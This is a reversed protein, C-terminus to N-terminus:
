GLLERYIELYKMATSRINFQKGLQRANRSKEAHLESNKLLTEVKGVFKGFKPEHVGAKHECILGDPDVEMSAVPTGHIWSQIFSNPFGEATSTNIFLGARRYWEMDEGPPVPGEFILGDVSKSKQRLEEFYEDDDAFGILHFTWDDLTIRDALDIFLEPRKWDVMRALWIVKKKYDYDTSINSIPYGYRIVKSDLNFEQKLGERMYEALVVRCDARQLGYYYLRRRRFPKDQWYSRTHDNEHALTFVFPSRTAQTYLRTWGTLPSAPTNHYIDCDAAHLSALYERKTQLFERVTGRSQPVPGYTHVTIGDVIETDPQNPDFQRCTIHINHGRSVLEKGILFFQREAGGIKYKPIKDVAFCIKM